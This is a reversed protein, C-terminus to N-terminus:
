WWPAVDMQSQTKKMKINVTREGFNDKAMFIQQSPHVFNLKLIGFNARFMWLSAKLPCKQPGWAWKLLAHHPDPPLLWLDNECFSLIIKLFEKFRTVILFRIWGHTPVAKHLFYNILLLSPVIISITSQFSSTLYKLHLIQSNFLLWCVRFKISMRVIQKLICSSRVKGWITGQQWINSLNQIKKNPLIM